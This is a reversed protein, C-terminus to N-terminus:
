GEGDVEAAEGLVFFFEAGADPEAQAWVRGGHREVVRRVTALGIGTGPYRDDPHLRQFVGFLKDAYRMDFGVGNDRVYYVPQPGTRLLGFQIEARERGATYKWANELLNQVLLRLLGPDGHARMPADVSWDVVRDPDGAALDAFVERALAHLAVPRHELAARSVQALKLLDDILQAMGDAGGLIREFWRREGDDLRGELRESLLRAFGTIARLPARLDHSVSCAFAELERNLEALERTRLQVREELGANLAQVEGLLERNELAVAALSALQTAIREDTADFADGEPAALQLVGAVRGDRRVLPVGLWGRLPPARHQANQPGGRWAPHAAVQGGSLRLARASARVEGALGWGDEFGSWEGLWDHEPSLAVAQLPAGDGALRVGTLAAVGAGVIERARAAVLQLTAREDRAALLDQALEAVRAIQQSHRQVAARKRVADTVDQVSGDVLPAGSGGRQARVRVWRVTGDPDVIRHTLDTPRGDAILGQLAAEVAAADDPHTRAFLAKLGAAPADAPAALVRCAQPSCVPRGGDADVGWHGSQGIREATAVRRQWALADDARWRALTASRLSTWLLLALVAGSLPLLAVLPDVAARLREPTPWLEIWWGNGLRPSVGTVLDWRQSLPDALADAVVAQVGDIDAYAALSFGADQRLRLDAVARALDVAMVLLAGSDAGPPQVWLGSLVGPRGDLTSYADSVVPERREKARAVFERYPENTAAWQRLTELSRGQRSSVFGWRDREDLLALAIVSPAIYLYLDVARRWDDDSAPLGTLEWQAALRRKSAFREEAARELQATLEAAVLDGETRLFDIHRSMIALWAVLVALLVAAPAVAAAYLRWHRRDPWPRLARAWASAGVLLFLPVALLGMWTYHAGGGLDPRGAAYAGLQLAGAGVAVLGALWHAERRRRPERLWAGALLAAACVAVALAALPAMRGPSATGPTAMATHLLADFGLDRQLVDQLLTLAGLALAVSLLVSGAARGLRGAPLLLAVGLLAFAFGLNFQVPAIGPWPQLWGHRGTLWALMVLLGGVAAAAAAARGGVAGFLGPLRAM